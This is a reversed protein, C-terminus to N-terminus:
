AQRTTFVHLRWSLLLLLLISLPWSDSPSGITFKLVPALLAAFVFGVVAFRRRLFLVPLCILVVGGVVLEPIYFNLMEWYGANLFQAMNFAWIFPLVVCWLFVLTVLLFLPLNLHARM